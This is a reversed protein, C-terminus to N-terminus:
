HLFHRRINRGHRNVRIASRVIPDLRRLCFPRSQRFPCDDVLISVKCFATSRQSLLRNPRISDERLVPLQRDPVVRGDFRVPRFVSPLYKNTNGIALNPNM